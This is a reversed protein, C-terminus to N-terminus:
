IGFICGSRGFVLGRSFLPPAPSEVNCLTLWDVSDQSFQPSASVPLDRDIRRPDRDIRGPDRDIRCLDRDVRCLDRDIWGLDRDIRCLDRDLPCPDRDIRPLDRDILSLDRDILGLDRDVSWLNHDVLSLDHDINRRMAGAPEEASVPTPPVGQFRKAEENTLYFLDAPPATEVAGRFSFSIDLLALGPLREEDRIAFRLRELVLVAM